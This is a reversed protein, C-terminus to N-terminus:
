ETDELDDSAAAESTEIAERLEDAQEEDLTGALDLL